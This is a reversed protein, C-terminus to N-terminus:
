ESKTGIASAAARRDPKRSPTLPLDAALHWLRPRKHPALHEAAFRELTAIETDAVVLAAIRQGWEPDDLGVVCAARVGPCRLLTQEVEVPDVNEGGTVIRDSRRGHVHLNGADDLSGLDGTPLWGGEAFPSPEGLYGDMLM